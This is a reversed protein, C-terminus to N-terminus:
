AYGKCCSNLKVCKDLSQEDILDDHQDSFEKLENDAM